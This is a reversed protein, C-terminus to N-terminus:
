DGLDDFLADVDEHVTVNGTSIQENAEREGAQWEETWFWRQETPIVTLADVRVGGSPDITFVLEDGERVRLASRIEPPLTVQAKKRVTARHSKEDTM